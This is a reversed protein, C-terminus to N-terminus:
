HHNWGLVIFEAEDAVVVNEFHRMHSSLFVAFPTDHHGITGVLHQAVEAEVIELPIGICGMVNGLSVTNLILEAEDVFFALYENGIHQRFEVLRPVGEHCQFSFTALDTSQIDASEMVYQWLEIVDVTICIHVDEEVLVTDFAVDDLLSTLEDGLVLELCVLLVVSGVDVVGEKILM